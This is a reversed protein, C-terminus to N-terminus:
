FFCTFLDTDDTNVGYVEAGREECGNRENVLESGIRKGAICVTNFDSFFRVKQICSCCSILECLKVVYGPPVAMSSMVTM